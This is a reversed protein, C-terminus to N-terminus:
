ISKQTTTKPESRRKSIFRFKKMTQSDFSIVVFLSVVVAVVCPVLPRSGKYDLTFVITANDAAHYLIVALVSKHSNQYMWVILIRNVVLTIVQCPITWSLPPPFLFFFFPVHWLAWIVGLYSAAHLANNNCRQEKISEFVYGMWGIEEGAAMVTFFLMVAVLNMVTLDQMPGEPISTKSFGMSDTALVIDHTIAAIAPGLLLALSYWLFQDLDFKLSKSYLQQRRQKSTTLLSATMFPIGTVLIIYLPAMKPAGIINWSACATLIYLPTSFMFVYRFFADVDDVAQETKRKPVIAKVM